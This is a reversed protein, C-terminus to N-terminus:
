PQSAPAKGPSQPAESPESVPQAAPAPVPSAGLEWFTDYNAFIKAVHYHAHLYERLPALHSVASTDEPPVDLDIPWSIFRTSHTKLGALTDAVQEPQTYGSATVYAVSAPDRLNLLFDLDSNGFLYDGPKTLNLLFKIQDCEVRNLVAVRGVPLTFYERWRLKREGCEGVAIAVALGGVAAMRVTRLRGPSNFYWVFLIIAPPSVACLRLWSPASAVSLFLTLGTISLLMLCDWPDDPQEHERDWLRVFFLIYMLPILLYISFYIALAPLRYWPHYRPIEIM